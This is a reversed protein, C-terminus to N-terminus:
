RTGVDVEYVFRLFTGPLGKEPDKATCEVHCKGPKDFRCPFARLKGAEKGDVRWTYRGYGEPASFTTEAHLRVRWPIAPLPAVSTSALASTLTTGGKEETYLITYAGPEDFVHTFRPGEGQIDANVAWTQVVGPAAEIAAELAQGVHYVPPLEISVRARGYRSTLNYRENIAEVSVGMQAALQELPNGYEGLPAFLNVTVSGAPTHIVWDYSGIEAQASPTITLGGETKACDFMRNYVHGSALIEWRSVQSAALPRGDQSLRVTAQATISKLTIVAPTAKVGAQASVGWLALWSLGLGM